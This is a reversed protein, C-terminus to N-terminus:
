FTQVNKTKNQKHRFRFNDSHARWDDRSGRTVNMVM